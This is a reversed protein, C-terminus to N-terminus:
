SDRGACLTIRPQKWLLLQVWSIPLTGAVLQLVDGARLMTSSRMGSVANITAFMLIMRTTALEPVLPAVGCRSAARSQAMM